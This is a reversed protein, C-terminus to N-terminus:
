SEYCCPVDSSLTESCLPVYEGTEGIEHATGDISTVGAQDTPFGEVRNAELCVNDAVGPLIILNDKVGWRITEEGTSENQFSSPIVTLYGGDVLDDWGFEGDPNQNNPHESFGRQDVQYAVLAGAIQAAETKYKAVEGKVTGKNFGDGGYYLAAGALVIVLAIAIVSIILSFM